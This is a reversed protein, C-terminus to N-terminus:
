DALACVVSSRALRQPKAPTWARVPLRSSRYAQSTSRPRNRYSRNDRARPSVSANVSIRFIWCWAACKNNLIRVAILVGEECVIDDALRLERGLNLSAALSAVKDVEITRSAHM